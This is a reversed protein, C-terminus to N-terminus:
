RLQKWSQSEFDYDFSDHPIDGLWSRLPHQRSGFTVTQTRQDVVLTLTVGWEYMRRAGSPNVAVEETRGREVSIVADPLALPQDRGDDAVITPRANPRELNVSLLTGPSPGAGAVCNIFLRYRPEYSRFVDITAATVTVPARAPARIEITPNTQAEAAGQTDFWHQWWIHCQNGRDSVPYRPPQSLQGVSKPVVANNTRPRLQVVARAPPSSGRQSTAGQGGFLAVLGVGIGIITVVTAAITIHVSRRSLWPEDRQRREAARRRREKRQRAGM